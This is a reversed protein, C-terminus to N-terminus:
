NPLMVFKGDKVTWIATNSRFNSSDAAKTVKGVKGDYETIDKFNQNIDGGREISQVLMNVIDYGYPATRANFRTGPYLASFRDAFAPDALATDTYWLGNYIEPSPSTNLLGTSAFNKIGANILEKSLIDLTPEFAGIYYIDVVNKKAKSVITKFDRNTGDYSDKYVISIGFSPAQKELESILPVFGPTVQHIIAMKKVGLKQANTLWSKIEDVPLVLNTYNFPLNGITVDTCDCVHIIKGKEALTKVANGTGSTTTIIAAVKDINIMKSGASAATAPNTGDDEIVLEYKNKLDKRNALDTIAIQAGKVLTDGYSSAGGTVPAVIGIKIVKTDKKNSAIGWIILIVVLLGIIVKITKNNM